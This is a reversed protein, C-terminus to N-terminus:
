RLQAAMGAMLFICYGLARDTSSGNVLRWDCPHGGFAVRRNTLNEDSPIVSVHDFRVNLIIAAVAHGSEHYCAGENDDYQALYDDVSQSTLNFDESASIMRRKDLLLGM